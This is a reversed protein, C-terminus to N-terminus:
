TSPQKEQPELTELLRKVVQRSDDSRGIEATPTWSQDLELQYSGLFVHPPQGHWDAPSLLSWQTNGDPLRYLHYIRGPHRQFSCRAHHLDKDHRAEELVQRAQAQLHRIQEAILQLKASTRNSVMADAHDIERALDM